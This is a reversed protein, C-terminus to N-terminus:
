KKIQNSDIFRIFIGNKELQEYTLGMENLIKNYKKEFQEKSSHKNECKWDPDDCFNIFLLKSNKIKDTPLAKKTHLYFAIRNSIQYYKYLWIKEDVDTKFFSMVNRLSDCKMNHNKKQQENADNKLLNGKSIEGCYSKAEIMYLTESEEAIAIGDWQAGRQPWFNIFYDKPLGLEKITELRNLQHEKGNEDPSLWKISEQSIDTLLHLNKKEKLERMRQYSGKLNKM